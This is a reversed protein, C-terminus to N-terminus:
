KGTGSTLTSGIGRSQESDKPIMSSIQTRIFDGIYRDDTSTVVEGTKVDVYNSAGYSGFIASKTYSLEEGNISVTKKGNKKWNTIVGDINWGKIYLRDKDGKTWRTFGKKIMAEIQVNSLQAM